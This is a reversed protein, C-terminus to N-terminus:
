NNSFSYFYELIFIVRKKNNIYLKPLNLFIYLFTTLTTSTNFISTQTVQRHCRVRQIRSADSKSFSSLIVLFNEFYIKRIIYIEESLMQNNLKIRDELIIYCEFVFDTQFFFKLYWNLFEM